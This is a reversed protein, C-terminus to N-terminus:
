AAEQQSYQNVIGQIIPQPLLIGGNFDVYNWDGAAEIHRYTFGKNNGWAEKLKSFAASEHSVLQHVSQVNTPYCDLIGTGNLSAQFSKTMAFGNYHLTGDADIFNSKKNILQTSIEGALEDIYAEGSLVPDWLVLSTVDTRNACAQVATVCGLRLGIVSVTDVSATDKLEDIAVGADEVWDPFSMEEVEGSSDGTGRYDFRLVPYGNRSLMMALQRMARHSRMYEQGLPACLVVGQKKSVGAPKHFVGYLQSRTDGFFFPDM